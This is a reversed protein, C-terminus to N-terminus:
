AVSPPPATPPSLAIRRRSCTSHRRRGRRCDRPQLRRASPEESHPVDSSAFFKSGPARDRGRRTALRAVRDGDVGDPFTLWVYYGGQPVEFTADPLERRVAAVMADRNARYTM